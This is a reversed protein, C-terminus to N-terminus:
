GLRKFITTESFYPSYPVAGPLVSIEWNMSNLYKGPTYRRRNSNDLVLIGGIKVKEVSHKFCANRVRGDVIIIDFYQDPYELVKKAYNEFCKNKVSEDSDSYYIIDSEKIANRKPKILCLEIDDSSMMKEKLKQYWDEDHEVSIVKKVRGSFFLTSAGCGYEFVILEKSLIGKVKSIAPFTIWPLKVSLPNIQISSYKMYNLIYRWNLIRKEKNSIMRSQYYYDLIKNKLVILNNM